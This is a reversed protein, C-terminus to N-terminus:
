IDPAAYSSNIQIERSYLKTSFAILEAIYNHLKHCLKDLTIDNTISLLYYTITNM